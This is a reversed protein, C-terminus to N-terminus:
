DLQEQVQVKLAKVQAPTYHEVLTWSSDKLRLFQGNITLLKHLEGIKITIIEDVLMKPREAKWKPKLEKEVVAMIQKLTMKEKEKLANYAIEVMSLEKMM